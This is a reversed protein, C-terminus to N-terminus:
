AAIPAILCPIASWELLHPERLVFGTALFPFAGCYLGIMLRRVRVPNIYLSFADSTTLHSPVRHSNYYSILEHSQAFPYHYFYIGFFSSLVLSFPSSFVM